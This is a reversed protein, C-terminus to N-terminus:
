ERRAREEQQRNAPYAPFDQGIAQDILACWVHDLAHRRGREVRDLVVKAIIKRTEEYHSLQWAAVGSAAPVRLFSDPIMDPLMAM